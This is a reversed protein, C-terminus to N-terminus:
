GAGADVRRSAQWQAYAPSAVFEAYEDVGAIGDFRWGYGDELTSLLRATAEHDRRRLAIELLTWYGADLTPDRDIARRALKRAMDPDGARLHVNARLDDIYPDGGVVRDIRDFAAIADKWRGGLILRDITLLDVCPDDPYM